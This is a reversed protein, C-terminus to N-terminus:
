KTQPHAAAAEGQAAEMQKLFEQYEETFRTEPPVTESADADFRQFEATEMIRELERKEQRLAKQKAKKAKIWNILGM